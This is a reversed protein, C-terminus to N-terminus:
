IQWLGDRGEVKTIQFQDKDKATLQLYMLLHM